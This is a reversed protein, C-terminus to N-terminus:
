GLPVMRKKTDSWIFITWTECSTECFTRCSRQFDNFWYRTVFTRVLLSNTSSKSWALFITIKLIFLGWNKNKLYSTKDLNNKKWPLLLCLLSGIMLSSLFRWDIVVFMFALSGTRLRVLDVVVFPRRKKGWGTSKVKYREQENVLPIEQSLSVKSIAALCKIRWLCFSMRRREALSGNLTPLILFMLKVKKGVSPPMKSSSKHELSSVHPM